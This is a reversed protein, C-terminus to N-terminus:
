ATEKIRELFASWAAETYPSRTMRPLLGRLEETSVVRWYDVPDFQGQGQRQWGIDTQAKQQTLPGELTLLWPENGTADGVVWFDREM